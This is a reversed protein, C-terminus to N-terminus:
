NDTDTATVTTHVFEAQVTRHRCLVPCSLRSAAGDFHIGGGNSCECIHVCVVKVQGKVESRSFVKKGSM